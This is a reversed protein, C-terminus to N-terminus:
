ILESLRIFIVWDVPHENYEVLYKNTTIRSPSRSIINRALAERIEKSKVEILM